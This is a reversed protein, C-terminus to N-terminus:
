IQIEFQIRKLSDPIQQAECADTKDSPTRHSHRDPKAHSLASVLFFKKRRRTLILVGLVLLPTDKRRRKRKKKKEKKKKRQLFEGSSLTVTAALRERQRGEVTTIIRVDLAIM